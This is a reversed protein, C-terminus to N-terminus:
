GVRNEIKEEPALHSYVELELIGKRWLIKTRKLNLLFLGLASPSSKM